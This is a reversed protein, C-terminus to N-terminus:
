MRYFILSYFGKSPDHEETKILLTPESYYNIETQTSQSCKELATTLPNEEDYTEKLLDEIIDRCVTSIYEKSKFDGFYIQNDSIFNKHM